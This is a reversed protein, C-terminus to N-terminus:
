AAVRVRHLADCIGRVAGADDGARPVFSGERDPVELLHLANRDPWAESGHATTIVTRLPRVDARAVCASGDVDQLQHTLRRIV